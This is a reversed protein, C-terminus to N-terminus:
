FEENCDILLSGYTNNGNWQTETNTQKRQEKEIVNLLSWSTAELFRLRSPWSFSIMDLLFKELCNVAWYISFLLKWSWRFGPSEQNVVYVFLNIFKRESVNKNCVYLCLLSNINFFHKAITPRNLSPHLHLWDLSPPFSISNWKWEEKVWKPTFFVSVPYQAIIQFNEIKSKM